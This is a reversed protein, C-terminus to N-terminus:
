SLGAPWLLPRPIASQSLRSLLEPLSADLGILLARDKLLQRTKPVTILGGGVALIRPERDLAEILRHERERLAAEGERELLAAVTSGTLEVLAEDTDVFPIRLRQACIRGITTKGVGPPGCLVLM